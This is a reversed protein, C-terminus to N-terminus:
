RHGVVQESPDVDRQAKREAECFATSEADVRDLVAWVGRLAGVYPAVMLRPAFKVGLKLSFKLFEWNEKKM